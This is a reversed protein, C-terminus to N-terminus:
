WSLSLLLLFCLYALKLSHAPFAVLVQVGLCSSGLESISLVLIQDNWPSLSVEILCLSDEVYDNFQYLIKEMWILGEWTQM